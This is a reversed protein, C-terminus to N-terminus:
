TTPARSWRTAVSKTNLITDVESKELLDCLYYRHAPTDVAGCKCVANPNGEVTCFVGGCVVHDVAKAEVYRERKLFWKRAQRAADFYPTGEELGNGFAHRSAVRWVRKEASLEVAQVIKWSKASGLM